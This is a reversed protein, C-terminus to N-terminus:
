GAARARRTATDPRVALVSELEVGTTTLVVLLWGATGVALLYPVGFAPQEALLPGIPGPPWAVALAALVASSANVVVHIRSPPASRAGFCGCDTLGRRISVLVVLTFLVYATAVLLAVWRAGTVFAAIALAIEIAGAARGFGGRAPLRLQRLAYEFAHPRRLKALGGLALVVLTAQYPGALAEM